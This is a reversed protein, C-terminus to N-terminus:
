TVNDGLASSVESWGSGNYVLLLYQGPGALAITAATLDINADDVTITDGTDATLLLLDGAQVGSYVISDLQDSTSSEAALKVFPRTVTAVGSAITVTEPTGLAMYANTGGRGTLIADQDNDAYLTYKKGDEDFLEIGANQGTPRGLAALINVFSM